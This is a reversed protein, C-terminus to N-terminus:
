VSVSMDFFEVLMKAVYGLNYCTSDTVDPCSSLNLSKLKQCHVSLNVAIRISLCFLNCAACLFWFRHCVAVVYFCNSLCMVFVVFLCLAIVFIIDCSYVFHYDIFVVFVFYYHVSVTVYMM